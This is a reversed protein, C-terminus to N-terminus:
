NTPQYTSQDTIQNISPNNISQHTTSQNISNIPHNMVQKHFITLLPYVGRIKLGFPPILLVRGRSASGRELVVLKLNLKSSSGLYGCGMGLVRAKKTKKPCTKPSVTAHRLLHSLSGSKQCCTPPTHGRLEVIFNISHGPTVM